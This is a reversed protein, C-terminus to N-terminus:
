GKHTLYSWLIFGVVIVVFVLDYYKEWDGYPEAGNREPHAPNYRIARRLKWRHCSVVRTLKVM